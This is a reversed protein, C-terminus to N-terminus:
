MALHIHEALWVDPVVVSVRQTVGNLTVSSHTCELVSHETVALDSCVARVRDNVRLLCENLYIPNAM